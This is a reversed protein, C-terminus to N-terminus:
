AMGKEQAPQCVPSESGAFGAGDSLRGRKDHNTAMTNGNTQATQAEVVGANPAACRDTLNGAEALRRAFAWTRM